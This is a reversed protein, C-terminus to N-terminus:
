GVPGPMAQAMGARAELKASRGGTAMFGLM